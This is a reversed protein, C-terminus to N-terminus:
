FRCCGGNDKSYDCYRCLYSPNPSWVADTEVCEVVEIIDERVLEMSDRDVLVKPSMKGKHDLFMAKGTVEEVEPHTSLIANGYFELQSSYDRIKGTKSDIAEATTGEIIVIDIYGVFFADEEVPNFDRDLMFKVEPRARRARFSDLIPYMHKLEDSLVPLGGELYDEVEKHLRTGRDMASTDRPPVPIKDIRQFKYKAPCQQYLGLSSYSHAM